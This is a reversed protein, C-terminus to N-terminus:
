LPSQAELQMKKEAEESLAKVATCGQGVDDGDDVVSWLKGLVRLPVYVYPVFAMTGIEKIAAKAPVARVDPDRMPGTIKVPSISSFLKHKEKPLLVINMTEKRLNLKIIGGLSINPGDAILVTSQVKGKDAEFKAVVCNLDVYKRNKFTSSVAWGLVNVSLFQIYKNPIKANEFGLSVSGNLSSAMEHPSDGSATVDIHVNSYGNIPVDNQVQAMLPSLKVDDATMNLKIAPTGSAQLGFVMDMTGGEFITKFPDVNLNGDKLRVHANVSDITLEGHSEVQDILFDFDVDFSNLFGLKYPKKSFIDGSGKKTVDIELPEHVDKKPNFGFDSLYLVPLKFSGKFYPRGNVLSGNVVTKSDSRGVAATATYTISDDTDTLVGDSHFASYRSLDIDLAKGLGVPDNIDIKADVKILENKGLNKQAGGIDINYLRTDSSKLSFKEVGWSGDFDSIDAAGQLRGLYGPPEGTLAAALDGVAVDYSISVTSGKHLLTVIEGDMRITPQDTAGINIKLQDLKLEAGKVVLNGNAEVAGLRPLDTGALGSFASLDSASANINFQANARISTATVVINKGKGSAKINVGDKNHIRIDTQGLTINDSAGTLRTVVHAVATRELKYGFIKTLGALDTTKIDVKLDIGTVTNTGHLSAQGVQGQLHVATSKASGINLDADYLGVADRSVILKTVGAVAGLHPIAEIQFLNLADTTPASVKLELGYDAASFQHGAAYLEGEGSASLVLGNRTKVEAILDKIHFNGNKEQLVGDFNFESIAEVKKFLLWSAVQPHTSRGTLHLNMGEGTLIDDVSGTLTLDVGEGRQMHADIDVLRPVAYDGQLRASAQLEGVPPIDDGLVELLEHAEPITLQINFDMGKGNAPDTITGDFHAQLREGILSVVVPKPVDHDLAQEIPPFTGKLKFERGELVGNAQLHVPGADNVDDFDLGSLAFRHLSGPAIEQYEIVLNKFQAREVVVPPFTFDKWDFSDTESEHINMFFDNVALHRVRLTGFIADRLRIDSKLTDASLLYSGDHAKLQVKSASLTLGDSVHVQLPGKIELEADLFTAAAWSFVPKYYEGDLFILAGILLLLGGLLLTVLIVWLRRLWGGSLSSSSAKNNL